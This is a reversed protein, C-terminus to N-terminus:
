ECFSTHDEGECGQPASSSLGIMLPHFAKYFITHLVKIPYILKQGFQTSINKKIKFSSHIISKFFQLCASIIINGVRDDWLLLLEEDLKTAAIDVCM